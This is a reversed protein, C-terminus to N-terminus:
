NEAVSSRGPRVTQGSRPASFDAPTKVPEMLWAWLGKSRQPKPEMVLMRRARRNWKPRGNGTQVRLGLRDLFERSFEVYAKAGASTADCCSPCVM